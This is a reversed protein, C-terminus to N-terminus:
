AAVSESQLVSQFDKYFGNWLDQETCDEVGDRLLCKPQKNLRTSEPTPLWPKPVPWDSFHLFKAENFVAVPDWEERDSGLYREHNDGGFEGTLLDYPRHPLVMASDKYLDNVIEMDYDSRGSTAIKDMIREFETASPQILMLQSSLIPNDPFLWYARPMAVPCPPLLFLEDMHQLITSDSDLSLVRKYATQNFALLKTFSDAWTPDSGDRHQISIPVLNVNFEDRAKLVLRADSSEGRVAGPDVMNSPYMLVRDAKSGLRHLAEFLMVSNCLYESNTVYQTYAYASWDIGPEDSRLNALLANPRPSLSAASDRYLLLFSALFLVAGVVIALRVLKGAHFSEFMLRVTSSAM